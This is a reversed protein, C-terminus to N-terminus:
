NQHATLAQKCNFLCHELTLKSNTNAALQDRATLMQEIVRQWSKSHPTATLQQHAAFLLDNLYLKAQEQNSNKEALEILERYSLKKFDPLPQKTKNTIIQHDTPPQNLDDQVFDHQDLDHNNHDVNAQNINAHDVSIKLSYCAQCRSRITPLLQNPYATMLWIQTQNPPEELLKLFANQAPVTLQHASLVVVYRIRNAYNAYTLQHTLQRIDEIKISGDAQNLYTVDQQFPLPQEQNLLTQAATMMIASPDIIILKPLFNQNIPEPM